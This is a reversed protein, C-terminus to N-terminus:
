KGHSGSSNAGRYVNIARQEVYDIEADLMAVAAVALPGNVSPPLVGDYIRPAPQYPSVQVRLWGSSAGRADSLEARYVGRVDLVTTALEGLMSAAVRGDLRKFMGTEIPSTDGPALILRIAGHEWRAEIHGIVAAAADPSTRVVMHAPDPLWAAAITGDDTKLVFTPGESFLPTAAPALVALQGTAEMRDVVLGRHESHVAFNVAADVPIPAHSTVCGALLALTVLLRTTLETGLATSGDTRLSLRPPSM